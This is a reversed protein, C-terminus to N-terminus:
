ISSYKKSVVCDECLTQSVIGCGECRGLYKIITNHIWIFIYQIM